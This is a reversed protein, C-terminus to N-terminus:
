PRLDVLLRENIKTLDSKCSQFYGDRGSIEQIIQTDSDAGGDLGITHHFVCIPSNQADLGFQTRDRPVIRWEFVGGDHWQWLGLYGYNYRQISM